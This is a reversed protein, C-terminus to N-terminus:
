RRREMPRLATGNYGAADGREGDLGREADGRVAADDREVKGADDTVAAHPHGTAAPDDRGAQGADDSVADHPHGTAAAPADDGPAVAADDGAPV